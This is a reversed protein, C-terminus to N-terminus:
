EQVLQRAEPESMGTGILKLILAEQKERLEAQMRMETKAVGIQEGEVLAVVRAEQVKGTILTRETSVADWYRDYAELQQKSYASERALDMAQQIEPAESGLERLSKEQVAQDKCKGVEKMHQGFIRKFVVDNRPDLYKAAM